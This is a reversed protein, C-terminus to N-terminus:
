GQCMIVTKMFILSILPFILISLFAKPLPCETLRKGGQSHMRSSIPLCWFSCLHSPPRGVRWIYFKEQDMNGNRQRVNSHGNGQAQTEKNGNKRFSWESRAPTLPYANRSPTPSPVLTWVKQMKPESLVREVEGRELIPAQVQRWLGLARGQWNVWKWSVKLKWSLTIAREEGSNGGKRQASSRRLFEVKTM